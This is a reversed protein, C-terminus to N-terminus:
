WKTPVPLRDRVPQVLQMTKPDLVLALNTAVVAIPSAAREIAVELFPTVRKTHAAQLDWVGLM